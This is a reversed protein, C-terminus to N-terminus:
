QPFVLPTFNDEGVWGGLNPNIWIDLLSSSLDQGNSQTKVVCLLPEMAFTSLNHKIYSSIWEFGDGKDQVVWVKPQWNSQLKFKNQDNGGLVKRRFCFQVGQCIWCFQLPLKRAKFCCCSKKTDVNSTVDCGTLIYVKLLASSRDGCLQQQLTKRHGDNIGYKVWTRSNWSWPIEALIFLSSFCRKLVGTVGGAMICEGPLM